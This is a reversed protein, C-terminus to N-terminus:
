IPLPIRAGSISNEAQLQATTPCCGQYPVFDQLIPFFERNRGTQENTRKYGPAQSAQGLVQSAPDLAQRAPEQARSPPFPHVFTRISPLDGWEVPSQGRDPGSGRQLGVEVLFSYLAPCPYRQGYAEQYSTIQLSWNFKKLSFCRM